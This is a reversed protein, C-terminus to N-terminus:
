KSVKRFAEDWAWRFSFEDYREYKQEKGEEFWYGIHLIDIDAHAIDDSPNEHPAKHMGVIACRVLYNPLNFRVISKYVKPVKGVPVGGMDILFNGESSRIRFYKAM